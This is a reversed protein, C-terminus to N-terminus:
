CRVEKHDGAARWRDSGPAARDADYWADVDWREPPVEVTADVGEALLRWFGDPGDGGGPFRCGVGIVAVPERRAEEARELRELREELQEITLLARKLPSLAEIREALDPM